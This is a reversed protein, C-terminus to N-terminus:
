KISYSILIHNTITTPLALFLNMQLVHASYIMHLVYMNHIDEINISVVATCQTFDVIYAWQLKFCM